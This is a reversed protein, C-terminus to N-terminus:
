KIFGNTKLKSIITDKDKDGNIRNLISTEKGDKFFIVTPTGDVEYNTNFEKREPDALKALNLSYATISYETLVKDFKPTFSECHSCGDQMVELIFTEKNAVKKQFDSYKLDIISNNSCGTLIFLSLIFTFTLLVKKM